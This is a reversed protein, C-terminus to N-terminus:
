DVDKLREALAILAEEDSNEKIGRLAELVVPDTENFAAENAAKEIETVGEKIKEPALSNGCDPCTRWDDELLKGCVPCKKPTLPNREEPERYGTKEEARRIYDDDFVHTYTSELAKSDEAHGVLMRITDKDLDYDRYMVTAFYHRFNHAEVPKEVGAEKRIQGLRQRASPRSWHDDPDTKWHSPDGIFLWVDEEDDTGLGSTEPHYQLWDRVYKEAGFIPRKRGRQLAGKLGGQEKAYDDNLYIYANGDDGDLEVDDVRLTLLASIRQGTFILLELFARNRIPMKTASCAQRLADVEESEFMDQEDYKPDSRESFKEIADPDANLDDHLRYFHEAAVQYTHLTTKQARNDDYLRAILSNFDEADAETLKLGEEACIRLNRLYASVTRPEVTKRTGDPLHYSESVTAGDLAEAFTLLREAAEATIDGEDKLETVREKQRKLRDRPGRAM